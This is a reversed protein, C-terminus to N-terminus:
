APFQRLYSFLEVLPFAGDSGPWEDKFLGKEVLPAGAWSCRPINGWATIWLLSWGLQSLIKRWLCILLLHQSPGKLVCWMQQSVSFQLGEPRQWRRSFVLLWQESPVRTHESESCVTDSLPIRNERVTTRLGTSMVQLGVRHWPWSTQCGPQATLWSPFLQVSQPKPQMKLFYISVAFM